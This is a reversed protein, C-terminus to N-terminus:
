KLTMNGKIKELNAEIGIFHNFVPNSKVKFVPKEGGRSSFVVPKALDITNECFINQFEREDEHGQPDYVKGLHKSEYEEASALLAVGVGTRDNGSKCEVSLGTNALDSLAKVYLLQEGQSWASESAKGDLDKGTLSICLGRLALNEQPSLNQIRNSMKELNWNNFFEEVNKVELERFAGNDIAKQFLEKHSEKNNENAARITKKGKARGSFVMEMVLPQYERITHVTEGVKVKRELYKRGTKLDEIIDPNDERWMNKVCTRKNRLFAREDETPILPKERRFLVNGLRIPINKFWSVFRTARSKWKDDDMFSIDVRTYEWTNEEGEVKKLGPQKPHKLRHYIDGLSKEEIKRKTDTRASRSYVKDGVQLSGQNAIEDVEEKKQIESSLTYGKIHKYHGEEKKEVHGERQIIKLEGRNLTIPERKLHTAVLHHAVKQIKKAQKGVPPSANGIEVVSKDQLVIEKGKFRSEYKLAQSILKEDFKEEAYGKDFRNPPLPIEQPHDSQLDIM